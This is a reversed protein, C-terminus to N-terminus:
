NHSRTTSMGPPCNLPHLKNKSSIRAVEIRKSSKISCTRIIAIQCSHQVAGRRVPHCSSPPRYRGSPNSGSALFRTTATSERARRALSSHTRAKHHSRSSDTRPPLLPACPRGVLRPHGRASYAPYRLGVCSNTCGVRWLTGGTHTSARGQTGSYVAHARGLEATGARSHVAAPVDFRPQVPHRHRALPGM